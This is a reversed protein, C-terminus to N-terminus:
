EIPFDFYIDKYPENILTFHWWELPYNRFGYKEMITKLLLRNIRQNLELQNNATHSITDFCDFGSGMDISNDRFRREYPLFSEYLKANHDYKDQEPIPIPVITLDVTSGRSHSSRDAIYGDKFLNRKDVSPYFEKKMLTDSLDNAWRIFHQVARHPRYCDYLKLSLNFKKLEEQVKALSEAAAKTLYCIEANYGDVRKGIFNHNSFYRLELIIDPIVSKVDVFDEPKHNVITQAISPANCDLFFLTLILLLKM